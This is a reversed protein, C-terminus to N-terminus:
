LANREALYHTGSLDPRHGMWVCYEGAIDKPHPQHARIMRESRWWSLASPISGMTALVAVALAVYNIAELAIYDYGAFGMGCIAAFVRSRQGEGFTYLLHAVIICVLITTSECGAALSVLPFGSMNWADARLLQEAANLVLYMVITLPLAILFAKMLSLM